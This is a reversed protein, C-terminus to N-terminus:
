RKMLSDKRFTEAPFSQNGVIKVYRMVTHKEKELVSTMIFLDPLGNRVDTKTQIAMRKLLHGSFTYFNKRLPVFDTTRVWYIVKAYPVEESNATLELKYAEDGKYDEIGLLAPTYDQGMTPKMIDENSFDSNSFSNSESVRMIKNIKPLYLWQNDDAKLMKEGKNRPPYNTEALMYGWERYSVDFRYTRRLKKKRYVKMEMTVLSHSIDLRDDANKLIEDAGIEAFVPTALLMLCSFLM